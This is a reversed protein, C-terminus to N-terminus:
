LDKKPARHISFQAQIKDHLEQFDCDLISSSIHIPSRFYNKNITMLIKKLGRQKSVLEDPNKIEFTLFKQNNIETIFIDIIDQWKILGPSIASSNDIIGEDYIVLGPKKDFLKMMYYFGCFGFFIIGFVSFIRM